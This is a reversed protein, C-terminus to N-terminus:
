DLGLAVGIIFYPSSLEKPAHSSFEKCDLGEGILRCQSGEFSSDELDKITELTNADVPHDFKREIKQRHGVSTGLSLAFGSEWIWDWGFGLGSYTAVAQYKINTTLESGLHLDVDAERRLHNVGLFFGSTEWPYYHLFVESDRHKTRSEALENTTTFPDTVSYIESEGHYNFGLSFSQHPRLMLSAPLGVTVFSQDRYDGQQDTACGLFCSILIYLAIIPMKFRWNKAM